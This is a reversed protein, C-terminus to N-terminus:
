STPEYLEEMNIAKYKSTGNLYKNLSHNVEYFDLVNRLSAITSKKYNMFNLINDIVKEDYNLVAAELYRKLNNRNLDEINMYEQLIELLEIMKITKLDLQLNLKHIKVNKITKYNQTIVRSYIEVNKAIQTTLGYKNFLRYGIIAGQNEGLYYDLIDKENALTVGFRGQKPKCYIGKSIRQLEGKETMRSITKYFTTEPIDNFHKSYYAQADIIKLKPYAKISNEISETYRM